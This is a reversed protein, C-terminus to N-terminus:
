SIEIQFPEDPPQDMGANTNCGAVSKIHWRLVTWGYGSQYSLFCHITCNPRWFSECHFSKKVTNRRNLAEIQANTIHTLPWKGAVYWDSLLVWM